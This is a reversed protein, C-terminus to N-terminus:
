LAPDVSEAKKQKSSFHVSFKHQLCQSEGGFGSGLALHGHAADYGKSVFDHSPSSVAPFRAFVGKGVRLYLGYVLGAFIQAAPPQM